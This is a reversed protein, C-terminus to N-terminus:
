LWPNSGPGNGRGLADCLEKSDFIQRLIERSREGRLEGRLRSVSLWTDLTDDWTAVAIAESCVSVRKM